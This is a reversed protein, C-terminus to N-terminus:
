FVLAHELFPRSFSNFEAFMPLRCLSLQQLADSIQAPASTYISYQMGGFLCSVIDSVHQRDCCGALATIM